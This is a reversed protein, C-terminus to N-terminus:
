YLYKWVGIMEGFHPNLWDHVNHSYAVLCLFVSVEVSYLVAGILFVYGKRSLPM